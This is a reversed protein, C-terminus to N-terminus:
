RESWQFSMSVLLSVKDICFHSINAVTKLNLVIYHLRVLIEKWVSEEFLKKEMLKKEDTGWGFESVVDM